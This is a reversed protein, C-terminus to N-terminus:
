IEGVEGVESDEGIPTYNSTHLSGGHSQRVVQSLSYVAIETGLFRGGGERRNELRGQSLVQAFPSKQPWVFWQFDPWGFPIASATVAADVM